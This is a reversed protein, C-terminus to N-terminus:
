GKKVGAKFKLLEPNLEIEDAKLWRHNRVNSIEAFPTDEGSRFLEINDECVDWDFGKVNQFIQMVPRDYDKGTTLVLYTYEESPQEVWDNDWWESASDGIGDLNAVGILAGIICGITLGFKM